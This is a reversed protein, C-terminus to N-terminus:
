VLNTRNTTGLDSIAGEWPDRTQVASFFVYAYKLSFDEESNSPDSAHFKTPFM